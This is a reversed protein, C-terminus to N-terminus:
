CNHQALGSTHWTCPEVLEGSIQAAHRRPFPVDLEVHFLEGLHSLDVLLVLDRRGNAISRDAVLPDALVFRAVVGSPGVMFFAIVSGAIKKSTRAPQLESGSSGTAGVEDLLVEGLVLAVLSTFEVVRAGTVVDSGDVTDAELESAM